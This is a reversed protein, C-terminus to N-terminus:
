LKGNMLALQVGEGIAKIKDWERDSQGLQEMPLIISVAAWPTRQKRLQASQDAIFWKLPSADGGDKWAYWQLVAFTENKTAGRFFRAKIQASQKQPSTVTFEKIQLQAVEWRMYSDIDVWEVQPQNRLGNQPLVQVLAPTKENPHQIKQISWKHEGVQIENQELTKWGPIELGTKRIERLQKLTTIPPPQKWEWKGSLYSPVTGIILLASLLLLIAIKPFLPQKLTKTLSLM